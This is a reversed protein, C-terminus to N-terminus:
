YERGLDKNIKKITQLTELLYPNSLLDKYLTYHYQIIGLDKSKQKYTTHYSKKAILNTKKVNNDKWKKARKNCDETHSTYYTQGWIKRKDKNNNQYEKSYEYISKAREPKKRSLKDMTRNRIKKCPECRVSNGILDVSNCDVCYISKATKDNYAKMM